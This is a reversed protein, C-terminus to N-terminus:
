RTKRGNTTRNEKWTQLVGSDIVLLWPIGDKEGGTQRDTGDAHRDAQKITGWGKVAVDRVKATANRGDM